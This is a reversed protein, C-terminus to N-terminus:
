IGTATSRSRRAGHLHLAAAAASPCRATATGSLCRGRCCLSPASRSADPTMSSRPTLGARESWRGFTQHPHTAAAPHRTSIFVADHGRRCLHDRLRPTAACRVRGHQPAAAGRPDQRVMNRQSSHQAPTQGPQSVRCPIPTATARQARACCIEAPSTSPGAKKDIRSLLRNMVSGLVPDRAPSRATPTTRPRSERADQRAPSNATTPATGTAAQEGM